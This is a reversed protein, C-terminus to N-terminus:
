KSQEEKKKLDRKRERLLRSEDNQKEMLENAMLDDIYHSFIKNTNICLKKFSKLIEVDSTITLRKRM